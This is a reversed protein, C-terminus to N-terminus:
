DVLKNKSQSSSLFKTNWIITPPFFIVTGMVSASMLCTGEPMDSRVRWGWTILVVSQCVFTIIKHCAPITCVTINRSIVFVFM